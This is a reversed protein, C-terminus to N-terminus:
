TLICRRIKKMYEKNELHKCFFINSEYLIKNCM